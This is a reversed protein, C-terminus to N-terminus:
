GERVRDSNRMRVPRRYSKPFCFSRLGPIYSDPLTPSKINTFQDVKGSDVIEGENMFVVNLQCELSRAACGNLVVISAAISIGLTIFNKTKM